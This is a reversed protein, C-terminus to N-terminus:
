EPLATEGLFDGLVGQSSFPFADRGRLLEGSVAYPSHLIAGPKLTVSGEARVQAPERLTFSRIRLLEDKYELALAADGLWLGGPLQLAKGRLDLFAKELVDQGRLFRGEARVDVSGRIDRRGLCTLDAAGEADFAGTDLYVVRIQGGGTDVRLTVLPAMGLRVDVWQLRPAFPWGPAEVSLGNVRFGLPSARDVSQWQIRVGSLRQACHKLGLDWITDWPLYLVLGALLGVVLALIGAGGLKRPDFPARQATNEADTGM